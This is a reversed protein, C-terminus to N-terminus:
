RAVGCMMRLMKMEAVRLKNKSSKKVTWSLSSYTMVPREATCYYKGKLQDVRYADM